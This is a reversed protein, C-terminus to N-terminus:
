ADVTPDTITVIPHGAENSLEVCGQYIHCDLSCPQIVFSRQDGDVLDTVCGCPWHSTRKPGETKVLRWVEDESIGLDRACKAIYEAQTM